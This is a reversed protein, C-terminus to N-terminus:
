RSIRGSVAGKMLKEIEELRIVFSDGHLTHKLCSAAVAFNLAKQLDDKYTLLGYMFGGAFSDGAGVRDVIHTIDYVPATYLKKGDYSVGSWMNHSASISGRLTFNVLRTNPFKDMLRQAVYTYSEAKLEGRAVDVGPAKIGFTKEADEENGMLVDVYKVLESM